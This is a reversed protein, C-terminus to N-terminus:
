SKGPETCFHIRKQVLEHKNRRPARSPLHSASAPQFVKQRIEPPLIHAMSDDELSCSPSSDSALSDTSATSSFSHSASRTMHMESPPSPTLHHSGVSGSVNVSNDDGPIRVASSASNVSEYNSQYGSYFDPYPVDSRANAVPCYYAFESALNVNEAASTCIVPLYAVEPVHGHPMTSAVDLRKMGIVAVFSAFSWLCVFLSCDQGVGLM